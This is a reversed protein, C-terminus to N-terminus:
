RDIGREHLDVLRKHVRQGEDDQGILKLYKSLIWLGKLNRSNKELFPRWESMAKKFSALAAQDGARAREELWKALEFQLPVHFPDKRTAELIIEVAEAPDSEKLCYFLVRRAHLDNEPHQRVYEKAEDQLAELSAPDSERLREVFAISVHKFRQQAEPKAELNQISVAVSDALNVVAHYWGDPIYIMDGPEVVVEMPKRAAALTPYVIKLWDTASFGGGPGDGPPYIGRPYLLWRKWGHINMQVAEGHTHWGVASGPGGLMFLRQAGGARFASENWSRIVPHLDDSSPLSPMKLGRDFAYSPELVEEGDLLVQFMEEQLFHALKVKKPGEGRNQAISWSHGTSVSCGHPEAWKLISSRTLAEQLKLLHKCGRLVFARDKWSSDSALLSDAEGFSLVPLDGYRSEGKRERLWKPLSSPDFSRWSSPLTSIAAACQPAVACFQGQHGLGSFAAAVAPPILFVQKWRRRCARSPSSGGYTVALNAPEQPQEWRPTFNVPVDMAM